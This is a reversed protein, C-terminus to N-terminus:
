HGNRPQNFSEILGQLNQETVLQTSALHTIMEDLFANVDQRRRREDRAERIGLRVARDLRVSVKELIREVRDLRDEMAM